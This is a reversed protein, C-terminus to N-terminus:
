KELTEPEEEKVEHTHVGLQWYKGKRFEIVAKCECESDARICRYRRKKIETVFTETWDVVLLRAKNTRKKKVSRTVDKWEEEETAKPQFQAEFNKSYSYEIELDQAALEEIV